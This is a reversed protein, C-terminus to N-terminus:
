GESDHVRRTTTATIRVKIKPNPDYQYRYLKPILRHLHPALRENAAAISGLSFAAGASLCFPPHAPPPTPTFLVRAPLHVHRPRCLRLLTGLKSNWISHHSALDLFKYVLDPQGM